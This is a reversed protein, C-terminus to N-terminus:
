EKGGSSRNQHRRQIVAAALEVRSTMALKRLINSVHTSVTRPSVCMRTAIDPNSDGAAVQEVVRLETITLAEWGYRAGNRPGRRGRHVDVARLRSTARAIDWRADLQAYIGLAQDLLTRAQAPRRRALLEAADTLTHAESLPRPATRYRDAARLLLEPDRTLLGQCRYADGHHAPGAGRGARARSAAAYRRARRRDGHALALRVLDPALPGLVLRGPVDGIGHDFADTLRRYAREADGRAEDLLAEACVPLYAYYWAIVTTESAGAAPADPAAATIRQGRHVAILGAIARLARSLADHEGRGLGAEVDALADDWRGSHFALLASTLHHWPLFVGGIRRSEDHVATLAHRADHGRDLATCGNALTLQLAIHQAPRHAPSALRVAYRALDLAETGPAELFGRAALVHLADALAPGDRNATATHRTAAAVAWAEPLRGLALLCVAAFARFRVAEAAAVGERGYAARCEALAVEARGRGCAAQVLIWRLPWEWATAGPGLLACRATEEAEALQGAVEALAPPPCDTLAEVTGNRVELAEERRLATVLETLYLPNGSAGEAMARLRPGPEGGCLGTLVALVASPPLPGPELVTRSGLAPPRTLGDVDHGHGGAEGRIFVARGNGTAASAALRALEACEAERGVLPPPTLSATKGSAPPAPFM